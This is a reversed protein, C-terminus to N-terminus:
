NRTFPGAILSPGELGAADAWFELGPLEGLLWARAEAEPGSGGLFRAVDVALEASRIADVLQELKVTRDTM